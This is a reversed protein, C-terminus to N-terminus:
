PGAVHDDEVVQLAVLAGARGPGQPVDACPEQKRRGVAGVEVGDFHREGLELCQDSFSGGPCVIVEPLGHSVNAVQEAFLFAVVEELGSSVSGILRSM